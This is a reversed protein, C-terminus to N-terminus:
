ESEGLKLRDINRRERKTPRGTGRERQEFFTDKLFVTKTLEEPPTLDEVFNVALKAAVRNHILGTVKFTHTTIGSRVTIIEGVKVEHSPKLPHDNIKVKNNRCADAAMSRTKFIRVSWMWKDIRVSQEM